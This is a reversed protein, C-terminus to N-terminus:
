PHCGPHSRLADRLREPPPPYIVASSRRWDSAYPTTPTSSYGMSSAISGVSTGLPSSSEASWTERDQASGVAPLTLPWTRGPAAEAPGEPAAALTDSCSKLAPSAPPIGSVSPPGGGSRLAPHQLAQRATPRLSPQLVLLTTIFQKLNASVKDWPGSHVATRVPTVVVRCELGACACGQGHM